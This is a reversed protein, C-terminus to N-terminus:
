KIKKYYYNLDEDLSIKPHGFLSRNISTKFGAKGFEYDYIFQIKTGSISYSLKYVGNGWISNTFKNNDLIILTDLEHPIEVLASKCKYNENVYTGALISNTFFNHYLYYVMLVFVLGIKITKKM